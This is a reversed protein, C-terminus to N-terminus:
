NSEPDSLVARYNPPEDHDGLEHKEDDVYLGYQGSAQSIRASRHVPTEDDHPIVNKHEVKTLHNSTNKLLDRM